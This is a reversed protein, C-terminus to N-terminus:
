FKQEFPRYVSVTDCGDGNFDGALPIDGPNGMFFSRAAVGQSNSNRVYAFGDAERFLGPTDIGDCDWDGMMPVDGPDGYFFTTVLGDENTLHWEGTNPNVLGVTDRGAPRAANSRPSPMAIGAVTLMVGILALITYRRM